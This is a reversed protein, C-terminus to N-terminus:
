GYDDTDTEESRMDLLRLQLWQETRRNIPDISGTPCRVIYIAGITNKTHLIVFWSWPRSGLFANPSTILKTYKVKQEGHHTAHVYICVLIYVRVCWASRGRKWAAPLAWMLKPWSGRSTGTATSKRVSDRLGLAVMSLRPGSSQRECVYEREREKEREREYETSRVLAEDSSAGAWRRNEKEAGHRVHSM